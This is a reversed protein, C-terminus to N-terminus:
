GQGPRFGSASYLTRAPVAVLDAPYAHPHRELYARVIRYGLTYGTWLPVRDGDGYVFRRIEAPDSLSLRRHVLPWLRVEDEPTLARVWPPNQEPYLSLAFADAVGEAVIADLLTEPENTKAFVFRGGVLGRPHLHNRVLHAYEHALAYALWEEWGPVPWLFALTVTSGLTMALVGRMVRTLTRSEGDGPLLLVRANLDPRPLAEACRALVTEAVEKASPQDLAQLAADLAPLDPDGLQVLATRVGTEALPGPVGALLTVLYRWLRRELATLAEEWPLGQVERVFHRVVRYAPVVTIGM